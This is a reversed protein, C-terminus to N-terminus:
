CKIAQVNENLTDKPVISIGHSVDFKDNQTYCHILFVKM